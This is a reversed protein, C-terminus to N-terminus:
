NEELLAAQRESRPHHKRRSPATITGQPEGAECGEGTDPQDWRQGQTSLGRTGEVSTRFGGAVRDRSGGLLPTVETRHSRM